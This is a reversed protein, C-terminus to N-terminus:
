SNRLKKYISHARRSFVLLVLKKFAYLINESRVNLRNIILDVLEHKLNKRLEDHGNIRDIMPLVYDVTDEIYDLYHTENFITKHLDILNSIRDVVKLIKAKDSCTNLIRSLFEKKTENGKKSVEFVLAVVQQSDADICLLSNVDTEPVDEILDHIIAAKLIVPDVIKYDLLITMTNMVHRFQNGGVRRGKGILAMAKHIWPALVTQRLRDVEFYDM